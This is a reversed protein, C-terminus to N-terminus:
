LQGILVKGIFVLYRGQWYKIIDQNFLLKIKSIISVDYIAIAKICKRDEEPLDTGCKDDLELAWKKTAQIPKRNILKVYDRVSRNARIEEATRGDTENGGHRRFKIFARNDYLTKGYLAAILAIWVDHYRLKVIDDKIRKEKIKELLARNFVMTCGSINNALLIEVIGPIKFHEDLRLTGYTGDGNLFQQNCFYLLPVSPDEENLMEIAAEIKQPDWIDDQDALSYYEANPANYLLNMFSLAAGINTGRQIEIRPDNYAKINDLTKDKSGDDRVILKIDTYSQNLISEIQPGIFREGNYTSLLIVVM